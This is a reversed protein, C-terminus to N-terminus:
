TGKRLRAGPGEGNEDVFIVGMAKLATCITPFISDGPINEGAELRALTRTTRRASTVLAEHSWDLLARSVRLQVPKIGSKVVTQGAIGPFMVSSAPAWLAGSPISSVGRGARACGQHSSMRIM